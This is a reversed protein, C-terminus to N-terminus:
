FMSIKTSAYKSLTSELLRIVFTSILRCRQQECVGSSLNEQTSAWKKKIETTDFDSVVWVPKSLCFIDAEYFQLYKGVWIKLM